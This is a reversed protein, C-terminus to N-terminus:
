RYESIARHLEDRVMNRHHHAATREPHDPALQEEAAECVQDMMNLQARLHMAAVYDGGQKFWRTRLFQAGLLVTYAPLLYLMVTPSCLWIAVCTAFIGGMIHQGDRYNQGLGPAAKMEARRAKKEERRHRKVEREQTQKRLRM